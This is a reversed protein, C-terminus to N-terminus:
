RNESTPVHNACELARAKADDADFATMMEHPVAGIGSSLRHDWNMAIFIQTPWYHPLDDLIHTQRHFLKGFEQSIADSKASVQGIVWGM